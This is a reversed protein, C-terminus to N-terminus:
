WLFVAIDHIYLLYGIVLYLGGGLNRAVHIHYSVMAAVGAYTDEPEDSPLLNV